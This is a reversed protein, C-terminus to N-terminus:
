EEKEEKEYGVYIPRGTQVPIEPKSIVYTKSPEVDKRRFSMGLLIKACNIMDDTALDYAEAILSDVPGDGDYIEVM